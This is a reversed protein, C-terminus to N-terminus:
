ESNYKNDSPKAKIILINELFFEIFTRWDNLTAPQRTLVNFRSSVYCEARILKYQTM